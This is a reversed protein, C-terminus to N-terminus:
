RQIVKASIEVERPITGSRYFSHCAGYSNTYTNPITMYGTNDDDSFIVNEYTLPNAYQDSASLDVRVISIADAPMISSEAGLTVSDVFKRIPTFQMNYESWFINQGYYNAKSQLRAISDGVIDVDEVDIVTSGDAMVNEVNMVDRIEYSQIDIYVFNTVHMFGIVYNDEYELGCTADIGYYISSSVVDIVRNYTHDIVYLAGGHTTYTYDNFIYFNNSYWVESGETHSFKTPFETLYVGSSTTGVVVIEEYDDAGIGVITGIKIPPGEIAIVSSGEQIELSSKSYYEDVIFANTSIIDDYFYGFMKLNNIRIYDRNSRISNMIKVSILNFVCPGCDSTHIMQNNLFASLTGDTVSINITSYTGSSIEVQHSYSTTSLISIEVRGITVVIDYNDGILMVKIIDNGYVYEPNFKMSFKFTSLSIGKHIEPGSLGTASGYSDVSLENSVIKYTADTDGDEVWGGNHLPINFYKLFITSKSSLIGSNGLNYSGVKKFIFNIIEWKMIINCGYDYHLTFFYKGSRRIKLPESIDESLPYSFLIKGSGSV